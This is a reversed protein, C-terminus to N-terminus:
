TWRIGTKTVEGKRNWKVHLADGSPNEGDPDGSDGPHFVFLNPHPERDIKVDVLTTQHDILLDHIQGAKYLPHWSDDYTVLPTHSEATISLAYIDEPNVKNMDLFVTFHNETVRNRHTHAVVNAPKLEGNPQPHSIVISYDEIPGDEPDRIRFDLQAFRGKKKATAASVKALTDRVESYQQNNTVALCQLILDLSQHSGRTVDSTISAMIGNKDGSHEYSEMVGFPVGKIEGARRATENVLDVEYRRHNLNGAPVRVVGDSGKENTAPVLTRALFSPRASSGILCFPRVGKGKWKSSDLWQANLRWLGESGLELDTLIRKGTDGGFKIRALMSKGQHALRSGFQPGALMVLNRLPKGETRKGEYLNSVWHRAVLAGTSHTIIHFKQSTWPAKGLHRVLEKDMGRALDAVTVEDDLTVYRGLFVEHLEYGYQALKLHLAQYTTTEDVSWGHVLFVKDAM